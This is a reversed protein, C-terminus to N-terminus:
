GFRRHGSDTDCVPGLARWNTRRCVSGSSRPLFGFDSSRHDRDSPRTCPARRRRWGSRDEVIKAAGQALIRLTSAVPHGFRNGEGVSILAFEPCLVQMLDTDVAGASGHHGVKLVDIDSVLKDAIIEHLIEGEADGTLLASRGDCVALLIVSAENTAVDEVPDRPWVVNLTFDGIAVRDGARLECLTRVPWKTRM